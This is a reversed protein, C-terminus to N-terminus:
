VMHPQIVLTKDKLAQILDKAPNSFVDQVNQGTKASLEIYKFNNKEAFERGM